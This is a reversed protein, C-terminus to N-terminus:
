CCSRCNKSPRNSTKKSLKWFSAERIRCSLSGRTFSACCTATSMRISTATPISSSPRPSPWRSQRHLQLMVKASSSWLRRPRNSPATPRKGTPGCSWALRYHSEALRFQSQELYINAMNFHADAMRPSVRVAERYAQVALDLQGKRRYVLALNYYGEARNMDLQIGRRLYPIADDYQELRNFVAGLNIYAGARQPDLRTVEKFHYASTALDNLLFCVTALGYHIDVNGSSLGLAQQFYQRALENKGRAVAQQAKHCLSDATEKAM